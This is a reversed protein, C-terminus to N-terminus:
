RGDRKGLNMRARLHKTRTQGRGKTVLSVVANCVQYITLPDMKKMTLFELLEHFLELLGLNDTLGILEAKTPSKSMCKQKKSSVYVLTEGVYIVVETHSKLDSHLAYGADLCATIKGEVYPQLVLVYDEAWKLYGLVRDLKDRDQVTANQVRTCLFIGGYTYRAQGAESPVTVKGDNLSLVEKVKKWDRRMNTSLLSNPNALLSQGKVSAEELLKKVYFNMDVMTGEDRIDIQMGFYSVKSGVEFQVEGFKRMLHKQLREAEKKDVQALIDDVYVAACINKRGGTEQVCV